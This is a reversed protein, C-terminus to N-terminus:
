ADRVTSAPPISSCSSWTRCRSLRRAAGDRERRRHLHARFHLVLVYPRIWRDRAGDHPGPLSAPHRGGPELRASRPLGRRRRLSSRHRLVRPLVRRRAQPEAPLAHAPHRPRHPGRRRLDAPCHGRRLPHDHRRLPAPLDQRGRYPFLASRLTRAGGGGPDGRPVHVRHRGPRGALRLGQRHRVHALDLSGRGHQRTRRENRGPRGRYPEPHPLAQLHLRHEVGQSAIGFAARLGAGGAGVVVADYHHEVLDYAAM